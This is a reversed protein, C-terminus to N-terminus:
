THVKKTRKFAFDALKRKAPTSTAAIKSPSSLPAPTPPSMVPVSPPSMGHSKLPTKTNRQNNTTPKAALPKRTALPKPKQPPSPVANEQDETFLFESRLSAFFQAKKSSAVSDHDSEEIEDELAVPSLKMGRLFVQTGPKVPSSSAFNGIKRPVVMRVPLEEIDMADESAAMDQELEAYERCLGALDASTDEPKSEAPVSVLTETTESEMTVEVRTTQTPQQKTEEDDDTDAEEPKPSPESNVRRFFPSALSSSKVGIIRKLRRSTPSVEQKTEKSVQVSKQVVKTKQFYDMVLRPAQTSSQRQSEERMLTSKLSVLSQERLVLVSWSNPDIKGTCARHYHEHTLQRGCCEELVHNMAETDMLEPYDNLTTLQKTKPNWVKQFQFALDAVKVEEMFQPLVKKGDAKLASLVREFTPYRRVYKVATVVGVGAVGKTYDCGSIMALSRWQEPTFLSFQLGEQKPLKLCDVEVCSGLDSLKTILKTCGFVVLDSDESLIGDVVGIKELYVMQPDAEYPAVVYKINLNDLEIMVLKVMAHTVGAAKQYQKWAGSTNGAQRMQEAKARAEERNARRERNTEAKTPLLAGDFVFYPEVGYYRLLEVKKMILTIYKRTPQNLCLEQACSIIGRHLWGYTDIALTKGRYKELTIPELVPGLLPLLGTVGM